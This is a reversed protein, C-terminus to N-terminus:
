DGQRKPLPSDKDRRLRIYDMCEQANRCFTMLIKGKNVWWNDTLHHHIIDYGHYEFKTYTAGDPQDSAKAKRRVVDAKPEEREAQKATAKPEVDHTSLYDDLKV